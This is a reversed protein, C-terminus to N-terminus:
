PKSRASMRIWNMWNMDWCRQGAIVSATEGTKVNWDWMGLDAGKIALVLREESELLAEEVRKIDTIDKAIGSLAIPNGSMDKLLTTSMLTPFPKGDKRIHWVEGNCYGNKIMSAIFPEVENKLQEPTHFISLNRGVLEEPSKYGHMDVWAQNVHTLKGEMDSIAMGESSQQVATSLFRIHEEARKRETIDRAIGLVRDEGSIKVPHTLIEVAIKTGDKRTLTFDDPGTPKGNTNETLLKLAKPVDDLSLIGVDVFNKGILEKRPYGLLKESARNGDLFAGNFDNIYYADPASEYIINLRKESERLANEAKKREDLENRLQETKQKVKRKLM